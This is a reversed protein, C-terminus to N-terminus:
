FKQGEPPDTNQWWDMGESVWRCRTDFRRYPSGNGSWLSSGQIEAGGAIHSNHEPTGMFLHLTHWAGARAPLCDTVVSNQPPLETSPLFLLHLNPLQQVKKKKWPNLFNETTVLTAPRRRLDNHGMYFPSSNTFRPDVHKLQAVRAWNAEKLCAKPLAKAMKKRWPCSRQTAILSTFPLLHTKLLFFFFIKNLIWSHATDSYIFAKKM